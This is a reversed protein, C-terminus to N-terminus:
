SQGLLDATRGYPDSWGELLSRRSVAIGYLRLVRKMAHM